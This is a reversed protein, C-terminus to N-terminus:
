LEIIAAIDKTTAASLRATVSQWHKEMFVYAVVAQLIVIPTIIILLSRAYLGKPMYDGVMALFRSPGATLDRWKQALGNWFSATQALRGLFLRAPQSTRMVDRMVNRM